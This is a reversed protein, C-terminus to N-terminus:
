GPASLGGATVTSQFGLPNGIAVVLQGRRLRKSDGLAASALNRAAGARLVALDTDPGEGLVRGEMSRGEPDTLRLEHAGEVVHSNTLVLGDPSIIVGSGVGGRRGSRGRTEVRVVAPGVDNVVGAVPRSYAAPLDGDDLPDPEIPRAESPDGSDLIFTPNPDLM